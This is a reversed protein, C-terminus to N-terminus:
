QGREPDEGDPGLGQISHPVGGPFLWLDGAKVDNVFSKGDADVATIRASGYIMFAWEGSVHWHLERIGGATLRMEVGAMTKSIALDRVTVQRTWGGSDIEKHSLDFSYKFPLMTGNDTEPAWVSDPNLSDNVTNNPGVQQENPLHHDSSRIQQGAQQAVLPATAAVAALAAGSVTLFQRRSVASRETVEEELKESM